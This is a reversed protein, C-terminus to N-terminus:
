MFPISDKTSENLRPTDLINIYKFISKIVIIINVCAYCIIDKERTPIGGYLTYIFVRMYM